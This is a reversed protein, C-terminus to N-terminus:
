GIKRLMDFRPEKPKERQGGGEGLLHRQVEDHLVVPRKAANQDFKYGHERLWEIQKPWRKYGTLARLEDPTLFM